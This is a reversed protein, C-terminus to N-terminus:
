AQQALASGGGEEVWKRSDGQPFASNHNNGKKLHELEVNQRFEPSMRTFNWHFRTFNQCSTSFCLFHLLDYSLRGVLGGSCFM